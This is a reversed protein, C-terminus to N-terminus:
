SVDEELVEVHNAHAGELLARTRDVDFKPDDADISLFYRDDSCRRFRESEFLPHHHRPLGNL